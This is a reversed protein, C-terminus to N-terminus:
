GGAAVRQLPYIDVEVAAAACVHVPGGEGPEFGALRLVTADWQEVTAAQMRYPAHAVQGSWLRRRRADFAFL